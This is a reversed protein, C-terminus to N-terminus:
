PIQTKTTCDISLSPDDGFLRKTVSRGLGGKSQKQCPMTHIKIWEMNAIVDAMCAM